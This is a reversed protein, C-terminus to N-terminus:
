KPDPNRKKVLITHTGDMVLESDQNHITARVVVTGTTRRPEISIVELMPYLTDGSYVPGLFKATTETIAIIADGFYHPLIGAGPAAQALVQLGHALLGKHGRKKLYVEDYHVPHNDGSVAQFMTFMADTQTRSPIYFKQGITVDELFHPECFKHDDINFDTM